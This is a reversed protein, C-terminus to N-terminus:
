RHQPDVPHAPDRGALVDLAAGAIHGNTLAHLLANEDVLSGRATNILVATPKMAQLRTADILHHTTHDVRCHLSLYDATACVTDLDLFERNPDPPRPPGRRPQQPRLRRHRAPRRATGARGPPALRRCPCRRASVVAPIWTSRDIGVILALAAPPIHGVATVTSALGIFAGGAIGATGKSSLMM